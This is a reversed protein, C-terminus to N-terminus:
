RTVIGGETCYRLRFTIHWYRKQMNCDTLIERETGPDALIGGITGHEAL